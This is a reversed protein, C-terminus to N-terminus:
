QYQWLRIAVTPDTAIPYWVPIAFSFWISSSSILYSGGILQQDHHSRLSITSSTAITFAKGLKLVEAIVGTKSEDWNNVNSYNLIILRQGPSWRITSLTPLIQSVSWRHMIMIQDVVSLYTIEDIHHPIDHCYFSRSSTLVYRTTNPSHLSCLYSQFVIIIM